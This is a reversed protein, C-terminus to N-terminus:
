NECSNNRNPVFFQRNRYSKPIKQLKKLAFSGVLDIAFELANMGSLTRINVDLRPSALLVELIAKSDANQWEHECRIATILPSAAYKGRFNINVEPDTVLKRVKEVDGGIIALFLHQSREENYM